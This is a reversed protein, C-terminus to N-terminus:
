RYTDVCFTEPAPFALRQQGQTQTRFHARQLLAGGTRCPRHRSIFRRLPGEKNEVDFLAVLYDARQRVGAGDQLDVNFDYRSDEPRNIGMRGHRPKPRPASDYLCLRVLSTPM